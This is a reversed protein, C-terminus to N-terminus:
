TAVCLKSVAKRILRSLTLAYTSSICRYAPNRRNEWIIWYTLVMKAFVSHMCWHICWFRSKHLLDYPSSYVHMKGTEGYQQSSEVIFCFTFSRTINCFVQSFRPPMAVKRYLTSITLILCQKFQDLM